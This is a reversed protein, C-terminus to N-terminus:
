DILELISKALTTKDLLNKMVTNCVLTKVGTKEIAEAQEKDLSDLVFHSAFGQYYDAVAQASSPMELEQMMKEAPGKLAKGGVIPSVVIVPINRKLIAQKLGPVSLIPEISVFPNSPCCVIADAKQIAGLIGATPQSKEIGKFTIDSIKPECQRAVFYEQFSMPGTETEVFTSVRTDTMPFIAHKVGLRRALIDTVETLNKGANLYHKRLTHTALDKDGLRFWTPGGLVEMSQMFSWTENEVGWGQEKNNIGALTYMLTDIDPSIPLEFHEFDDATNVIVNLSEPVLVEALGLALKAGGVGGTLALIRKNM